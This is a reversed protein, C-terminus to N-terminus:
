VVIPDDKARGAVARLSPRRPDMLVADKLHSVQYEPMTRADLVLPQPRAPDERWRALEAADIWLVEPFKRTTLRRVVEFAVGRGAILLVAAGILIPVVVVVLFVGLWPRRSRSRRAREWRGVGGEDPIAEM